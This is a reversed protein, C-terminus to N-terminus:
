VQLYLDALVPPLPVLKQVSKQFLIIPFIMVKKRLVLPFIKRSTSRASSRGRVKKKIGRLGVPIHPAMAVM